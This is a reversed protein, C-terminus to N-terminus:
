AEEPKALGRRHTEVTATPDEARSEFRKKQEKSSIHLFFKILITGDSVLLSEWHRSRKTLAGGTRSM